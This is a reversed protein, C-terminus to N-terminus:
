YHPSVILIRLTHNHYHFFTKKLQAIKTLREHKTSSFGVYDPSFYKLIGDIDKKNFLAVISKEINALEKEVSGYTDATIVHFRIDGALENIIKDVGDILQGDIAITGNYDFLVHKIKIPERGPIEFIM